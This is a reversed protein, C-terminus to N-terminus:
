DRAKARIMRPVVAYEAVELVSIMSIAIERANMERDIAKRATVSLKDHASLWMILAATDLVIM